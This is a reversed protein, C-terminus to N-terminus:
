PRAPPPPGPATHASPLPGTDFRSAQPRRQGIIVPTAATSRIGCPTPHSRQIYNRRDPPSGLLSAMFRRVMCCRIAFPGSRSSVRVRSAASTPAAPVRCNCHSPLSTSAKASAQITRAASGAAALRARVASQRATESPSPKKESVVGPAAGASTAAQAAEAAPTAVISGSETIVLAATGLSGDNPWSQPSKLVPWDPPSRSASMSAGSAQSMVVPERLTTTATISVPTSWAWRSRAALAQRFGPSTAPSRISLSPLPNTSSTYPQSKALLSASGISSWPCPVCTAPVIPATPLLPEPTTPTLQFTEIM